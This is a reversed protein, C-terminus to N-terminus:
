VFLIEDIILRDRGQHSAYERFGLKRLLERSPINEEFRGCHIYELDENRFLEPIVAKLTEMMYGKRQYPPFVAYALTRGKGQLGNRIEEPLEPEVDLLFGIMAGSDKEVLSWSGALGSFHVFIKISVADEMEPPFGYAIRLKRDTIGSVFAEEDEKEMRRILLRASEMFYDGTM